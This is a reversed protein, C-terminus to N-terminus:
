FLESASINKSLKDAAEAVIVKSDLLGAFGQSLM